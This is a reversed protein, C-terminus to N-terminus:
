SAHPKRVLISVLPSKGLLDILSSLPMSSVKAGNVEEFYCGETVCLSPNSDNWRAILGDPKVKTICVAARKENYTIVVGLDVNEEKFFQVFFESAEEQRRSSPGSDSAASTPEKQSAPEEDAVEQLHRLDQAVPFDPAASSFTTDERATADGESYLSQTARDLVATSVEVVPTCTKQECCANGM